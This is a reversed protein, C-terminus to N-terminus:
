LFPQKNRQVPWGNIVLYYMRLRIGKLFPVQEKVKGTEGLDQVNQPSPYEQGARSFGCAETPCCVLILVAASFLSEGSSLLPQNVKNGWCVVQTSSLCGAEEQGRLNISSSVPFGSVPYDPCYPVHLSFSKAECSLVPCVYSM